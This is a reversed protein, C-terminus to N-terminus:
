EEDDDDAEENLDAEGEDDDDDAVIQSATYDGFGVKGRESLYQFSQVLLHRSLSSNTLMEYFWM